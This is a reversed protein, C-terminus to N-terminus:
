NYDEGYHGACVDNEACVFIYGVVSSADVWCEHLEPEYRERERGLM